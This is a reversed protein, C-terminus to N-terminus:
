GAPNEVETVNFPAFKTFGTCPMGDTAPFACTIKPPPLVGPLMTLLTTMSELPKTVTDDGPLSWSKKAMTGVDPWNKPLKKLVVRLLVTGRLPRKSCVLLAVVPAPNKRPVLWVPKTMRAGYVM